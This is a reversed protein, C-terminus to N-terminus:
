GNVKEQLQLEERLFPLALGLAADDPADVVERAVATLDALAQAYKCAAVYRDHRLSELEDVRDRLRAIELAQEYELWSM